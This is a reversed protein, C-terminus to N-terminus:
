SGVPVMTVASATNEPEITLEAPEPINHLSTQIQLAGEKQLDEIYGPKAQTAQAEDDFPGFYYVCNPEATTIKVWWPNSFFSFLGSFFNKM